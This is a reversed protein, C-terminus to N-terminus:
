IDLIKLYHSLQLGANWADSLSKGLVWDGTLFIKNDKSNILNKKSLSNYTTKTQAYLWRHTKMFFPKNDVKLIKKFISLAYNELEVNSIDLNKKTYESSMNLVWSESKLKPFKFNQKMFFSIDDHLNLGGDIKLHTKEKFSLMLTYIPDYEPIHNNSFKIYDTTLDKAQFFPICVLVIDYDKFIANETYLDYNKKKNKFIKLVKTNFHSNIKINEFIGKPISNIGNKGVFIKKKIKENKKFDAYFIIEKERLLNLKNLVDNLQKVKHKQSLYHAGHDFILDDHKRTSARGGARWSKDFITINTNQLNYALSLGTM